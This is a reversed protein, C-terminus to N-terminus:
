LSEQQIRDLTKIVEIARENGLAIFEFLMDQIDNSTVKIIHNRAQLNYKSARFYARHCETAVYALNLTQKSNLGHFHEKRLTFFINVYGAPPYITKLRIEILMITKNDPENDTLAIAYPKTSPTNPCVM